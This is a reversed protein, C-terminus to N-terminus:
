AETEVGPAAVGGGRWISPAPEADGARRAPGRAGGDEGEGDLAAGGAVVAGSGDAAGHLFLQTMQRALEDVPADRAPDYWNYIWNMMGFLAFTATRASVASGSGQVDQMIAMCTDTYQRKRANVRRRYDGTLTAAEHSLVKMEKMNAVFFRLHNEVLLRLRLRPDDVGDLLRDLNDLITGFCHDQILFLLEEKSSFYYYLGAISVGTARSIDRIGTDHFGKQAFEGAAVRLIRALKEDYAQRDM